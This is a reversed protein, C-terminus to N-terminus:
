AGAGMAVTLSVHQQVVQTCLSASFLSPTLSHSSLLLSFFTFLPMDLLPVPDVQSCRKSAILQELVVLHGSWFCQKLTFSQNGSASNSYPTSWIPHGAEPKYDLFNQMPLQQSAAQDERSMLPHPVGTLSWTAM